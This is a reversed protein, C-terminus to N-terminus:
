AQCGPACNAQVGGNPWQYRGDPLFRTAIEHLEADVLIPFKRHDSFFHVCLRQGIRSQGIAAGVHAALVMQTVYALPQVDDGDWVALRYPEAIEIRGVPAANRIIECQENLPYLDIATANGDQGVVYGVFEPLGSVFAQLGNVTTGTLKYTKM